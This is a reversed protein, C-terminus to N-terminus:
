SVQLWGKRWFWISPIISVILMLTWAFLYGHAWHYEPEQFNMGWVAALFTPPMFIISIGTLIKMVQGVRNTASSLYIDVLSLASERQSELLDMQRVSHDYCDRIFVHTSKDILGLENRMLASLMDRNAWIIQRLTRLDRKFFQIAHILTADPQSMVATEYSDLHDSYNELIPFICDTTYDLIEYLLYDYGKLQSRGISNQLNKEFLDSLRSATELFSVIYQPGLFLSLQQCQIINKQLELLHAVVFQYGDYNDVKARQNTKLTDELALPHFHFHTAIAQIIASTQLGTVRVWLVQSSSLTFKNTLLDELTYTNIQKDDYVFVSVQTAINHKLRKAFNMKISPAHLSSM